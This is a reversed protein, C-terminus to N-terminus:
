RFWIRQYERSMEHLLLVVLVVAIGFSIIQPFGLVDLGLFWIWIGANAFAGVLATVYGWRKENAIGFGGIGLAVSIAVLPLYGGSSILGFFAELYCLLTANVLTPPQSRNLVQFENV